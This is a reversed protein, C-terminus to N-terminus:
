GIIGRAVLIYYVIIGLVAVLVFILIGLIINLATSPSDEEEYEEEDETETKDVVFPITDDLLSTDSLTNSLTNSMTENINKIEVVPEAELTQAIVPHENEEYNENASEFAENIEPNIVIDKAKSVLEISAAQEKQAKIEDLVKSIELSVTNSFDVDQAEDLARTEGEEPHRVKEVMSGPLDGLTTRGQSKNYNDVESLTADVFTSNLNPQNDNTADDSALNPVVVESVTEVPKTEEEKEIEVKQPKPIVIYQIGRKVEVTSVIEVLHETVDKQDVHAVVAHKEPLKIKVEEKKPETPTIDEKDVVFPKPAQVTQKVVVPAEVFKIPAPKGYIDIIDDVISSIQKAEEEITDMLSMTKVPTTEEKVEVPKEEVIEEKKVPVAPEEKKHSAEGSGASKMMNGLIDDLFKMSEEQKRKIEHARLEDEDEDLVKPVPPIYDSKRSLNTEPQSNFYSELTKLKNEYQNLNETELSEERDQAIKDRLEAYKQTRTLRAM